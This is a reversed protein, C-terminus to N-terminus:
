RLLDLRAMMDNSKSLNLNILSENPCPALSWTNFAILVRNALMIRALSVIARVPPSSNISPHELSFVSFIGSGYGLINQIGKYFRERDVTMLDM